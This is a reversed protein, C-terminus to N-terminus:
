KTAGNLSNISNSINNNVEKINKIIPETHTHTHTHKQRIFNIRIIYKEFM